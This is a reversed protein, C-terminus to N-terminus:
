KLKQGNVIDQNEGDGGRQGDKGLSVIDFDANVEPPIRLEFFNGWPDKLQNESDVYPSWQSEEVDGPRNWLIEISTGSEPMFHDNVFLKMATALSNAQSLAVNQKSAGVRGILRPAIVAALVGIIIVVVIIETITFGRARPRGATQLKRNAM